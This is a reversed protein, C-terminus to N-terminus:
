HPPSFFFFLWLFGKFLAYLLSCFKQSPCMQDGRPLGAQPFPQQCPSATHQPEPCAERVSINLICPCMWGTHTHLYASVWRPCSPAELPTKKEQLKCGGPCCQNMTSCPHEERHAAAPCLPIEFGGSNTLFPGSLLILVAQPPLSGM